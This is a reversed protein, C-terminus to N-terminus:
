LDVCAAGQALSPPNCEVAVHSSMNRPPTNSAPPILPHPDWTANLPLLVATSGREQRGQPAPAARLHDSLDRARCYDRKAHRREPLGRKASLRAM